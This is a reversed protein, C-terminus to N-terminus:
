CAPLRLAQLVRASSRDQVLGVVGSNNPATGPPFPLTRRVPTDSNVAFPGQWEVVQSGSPRDAYAALYLVAAEMGGSPLVKAAAETELGQTGVSVIELRIRAHAPRSYIQALTAGFGPTGWTRFERGQLLVQPTYILAMRQLLTLRRPRQAPPEGANDMPVLVRVVHDPRDAHLTSLWHEARECGVCNKATYLEVLAVTDDASQAACSGAQTPAAFCAALVVLIGANMSMLRFRRLTSVPALGM